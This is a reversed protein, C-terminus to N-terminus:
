MFNTKRNNPFDSSLFYLKPHAFDASFYQLKNCETTVALSARSSPPPRVICCLNSISQLSPSSKTQIRGWLINRTQFFCLYLHHVIGNFHLAIIDVIMHRYRNSSNEYFVCKRIPEIRFFIHIIGVSFISLNESLHSM